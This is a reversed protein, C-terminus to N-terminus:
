CTDMNDINRHINKIKFKCNDELKLKVMFRVQFFEVVIYVHNKM